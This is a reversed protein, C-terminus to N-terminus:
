NNSLFSKGFIYGLIIFLAVVIALFYRQHDTAIYWIPDIGGYWITDGTYFMGEMRYLMAWILYVKGVIFGLVTSLFICLWFKKEKNM